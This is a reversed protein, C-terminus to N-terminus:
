IRLVKLLKKKDLSVDQQLVLKSMKTSCTQPFFLYGILLAVCMSVFYM